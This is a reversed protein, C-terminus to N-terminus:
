QASIGADSITVIKTGVLVSWVGGTNSASATTPTCGVNLLAIFEAAGLLDASYFDGHWQPPLNGGPAATFQNTQTFHMPPGALMNVCLSQGNNAISIQQDSVVNMPNLAHINWEWQRATASALKDYVLVLNPPLYVM